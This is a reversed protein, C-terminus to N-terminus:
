TLSQDVLFKFEPQRKKVDKSGVLGEFRVCGIGRYRKSGAKEM